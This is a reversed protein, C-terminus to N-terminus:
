RSSASSPTRYQFYRERSREDVRRLKGIEARDWYVGLSM